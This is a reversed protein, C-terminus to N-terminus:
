CFEYLGVPQRVKYKWIIIGGAVEFLAEFYYFIDDIQLRRFEKPNLVIFFKNNNNNNIIIIIIITLKRLHVLEVYTPIAVDVFHRFSYECLDVCMWCSM